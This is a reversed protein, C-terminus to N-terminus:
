PAAGKALERQLEKEVEEFFDKEIRPLQDTMTKRPLLGRKRIARAIPFAAAKAQTRTLGLRRQAWDVIAQTPPQRAGQRRGFEIVGAYTASNFVRAGDPLAAYKWNRKYNATNVAGGEGKGAPNAPGVLGTARQLTQVARLAGRLAGRRAAVPLRKGLSLFAAPLEKLSMKIVTTTM